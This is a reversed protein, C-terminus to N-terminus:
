RMCSTPHNSGTICPDRELLFFSLPFLSFILSILLQYPSLSLSILHQATTIYIFKTLSTFTTAGSHCFATTSKKVVAITLKHFSARWQLVMPQLPRNTCRIKPRGRYEQWPGGVVGSLIWIGGEVGM